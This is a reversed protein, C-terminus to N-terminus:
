QVMFKVAKVGSHEAGILVSYIGSPLSAIDLLLQHNGKTFTKSTAEKVLKGNIDMIQFSVTENQNVTFSVNIEDQTAPNPFVHENSTLLSTEKVGTPASMNYNASYVTGQGTWVESYSFLPAKYDSNMYSYSYVESYSGGITDGGMVFIDTIEQMTYLRLYPFTGAPTTINGFADAIQVTTGSRKVDVGNVTYEATFTDYISDQFHTPFVFQGMPNNFVLTYQPTAVGLSTLQSASSSFYAYASVGQLSETAQAVTAGPFFSAYPTGVPSIFTVTQAAGDNVVNSYDVNVNAGEDSINFDTADCPQVTYSDGPAYGSASTITIQASATQLAAISIAVIKFVKKM